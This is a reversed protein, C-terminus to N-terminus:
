SAGVCRLRRYRAVATPRNCFPPEDRLGLTGVAPPSPQDPTAPPAPRAALAALAEQMGELKGKLRAESLTAERSEAALGEYQGPTVADEIRGSLCARVAASLSLLNARVRQRDARIFDEATLFSGPPHDDMACWAEQWCGQLRAAALVARRRALNYDRTKLSRTLHTGLIPRFASPIRIRLSWGARRKVLFPAAM